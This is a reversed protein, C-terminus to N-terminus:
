VSRDWVFWAEVDRITAFSTTAQLTRALLRNTPPPWTKGSLRAKRESLYGSGYMQWKTVEGIFLFFDFLLLLQVLKNGMM